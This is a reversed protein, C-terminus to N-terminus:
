DALTKKGTFKDVSTVTGKTSATVIVNEGIAPSMKLYEDDAGSGTKVSWALHPKIEPQFQTLPKPEPTNDKEFFGNCATLSTTLATILFLKITIKM